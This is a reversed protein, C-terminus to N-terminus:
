GKKDRRVYVKAPGRGESAIGSAPDAALQRLETSATSYSLGTAKAYDNPRMYSHTTEDLFGLAIAIREERTYPSRRLRKEGGRELKCLSAVRKLWKREPKYAVNDVTLSSANPEADERQPASRRKERLALTAHFTGIGDLTVSHGDALLRAMEGSLAALIHRATGETVGMGEHSCLHRLLDDTSINGSSQMRYYSKTKGTGHLDPMEQKIYKAM